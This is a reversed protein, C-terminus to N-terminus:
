PPGKIEDYHLESMRHILRQRDLSKEYISVTQQSITRFLVLFKQINININFNKENSESICYYLQYLLLTLFIFPFVQLISLFCYLSKSRFTYIISKNLSITPILSARISTFRPIRPLCNIQRHHATLWATVQKVRCM